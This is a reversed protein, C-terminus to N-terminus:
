AQVRGRRVWALAIAAPAAFLLVIYLPLHLFGAGGLVGLIVPLALLKDHALVPAAMKIAAGIVLGAAGAALGAMAHAVVPLVSFRQYLIALGVAILAPPGSLGAIACVSGTWGRFRAGVAVSVNVINPGPLFQCLGLVEIFETESLWRTEEVLMQRGMVLVGGFGRLGVSVFRLFLQLHTPIPPSPDSVSM